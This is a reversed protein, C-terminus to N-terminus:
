FNIDLEGNPLKELDSDDPDGWDNMCASLPATERFGHIKLHVTYQISPLFYSGQGFTILQGDQTEITNSENGEEALVVKVYYESQPALLIGNGVPQSTADGEPARVDTVENGEEDCLVLDGRKHGKTDLRHTLPMKPNEYDAIILDAETPVDVIKIQKIIVKKSKEYTDGGEVDPQYDAVFNLRVLLHYLNLRPKVDAKGPQLFYSASYAKPDGTDSGHVEGWILDTKGDIEKPVYIRRDSSYTMGNFSYPYYAYFDYAYFQSVPYYFRRGAHVGAWEIGSATKDAYVNDMLIGSKGWPWWEIPKPKDSSDMIRSALAFIGLGHLDADGTIAARTDVSVSASSLSIEVGSNGVENDVEINNVSPIMDEELDPNCSTVLLAALVPLIFLLKRM